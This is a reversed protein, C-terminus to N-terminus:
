SNRHGNLWEVRRLKWILLKAEVPPMDLHEVHEAVSASSVIGSKCLITLARRFLRKEEMAARAAGTDVIATRRPEATALPSPRLIAPQLTAAPLKPKGKSKPKEFCTCPNPTCFMCSETTSRGM